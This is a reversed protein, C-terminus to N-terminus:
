LLRRKIGTNALIKSAIEEISRNTTSLFPINEKKFINEIEACEYKCQKLDAYNSNPRRENRIENLRHPDITLGFLKDRFPQLHEPLRLINFDDEVFPYNAAFIGFQMALYLCSPTKGSRSVGLLLIDAKEYEKTNIGDDCSLAYNVAQIRLMYNNYDQMGHFRGVTHSSQQGLLNELPNIFTQFFDMLMGHSDKLVKSIEPDIITAFILPREGDKQYAQEIQQYVVQAKEKNNVYPITECVFNIKDFQTMLSQGLTEATIGTGDSIFFVTRRM